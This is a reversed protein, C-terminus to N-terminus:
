ANRQGDERGGAAAEPSVRKMGLSVNECQIFATQTETTHFEVILM